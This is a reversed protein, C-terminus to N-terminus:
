NHGLFLIVSELIALGIILIIASIDVGGVPPVYKRIRELAPEIFKALLKVVKNVYKNNKKVIEFKILWFLIFYIIVAWSYLTIAKALLLTILNM